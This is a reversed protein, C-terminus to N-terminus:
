DVTNWNLKYELSSYNSHSAINQFVAENVAQENPFIKEGSKFYALGSDVIRSNSKAIVECSVNFGPASGINKVTVLVYPAGYNKMLQLTEVVEFEAFDKEEKRCGLCLLIWFTFIFIRKHKM